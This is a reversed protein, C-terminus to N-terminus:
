RGAGVGLVRRLVYEGDPTLPRVDGALVRDVPQFAGREIEEAQLTM